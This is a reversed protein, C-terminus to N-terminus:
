KFNIKSKNFFVAASFAREAEVSTPKISCLANYLKELNKTKKLTGEFTKFELNSDFRDLLSESNIPSEDLKKMEQIYEFLVQNEVNCQNSVKM